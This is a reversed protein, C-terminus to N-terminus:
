ALEWPCFTWVAPLLMLEVSLATPELQAYNVLVRQLRKHGACWVTHRGWDKTPGASNDSWSRRFWVPVCVSERWDM